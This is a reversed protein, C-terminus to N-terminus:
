YAQKKFAGMSYADPYEEKYVLPLFTALAAISGANPAAGKINGAKIKERIDGVNAGAIKMAFKRAAVIQAPSSQNLKLVGQAYITVTLGCVLIILSLMTLSKEKM